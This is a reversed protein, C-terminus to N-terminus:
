SAVAESYKAQIEFIEASLQNVRFSAPTKEFMERVVDNWAKMQMRATEYLVDADDPYLEKMRYLVPFAGAFNAAAIHCRALGLGTLRRLDANETAEFSSQLDNVAEPCRGTSARTLALVAKFRPDTAGAGPIKTLREEAALYRGQSYLDLAELLPDTQSHLVVTSFLLLVLSPCFSFSRGRPRCATSKCFLSRRSRPLLASTAPM